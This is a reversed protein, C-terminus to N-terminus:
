KGVYTAGGQPYSNVGSHLYVLTAETVEKNVTEWNEQYFAAIMGDPGPTKLGGIQFMAVKVEEAKFPSCLSRKQIESIIPTFHNILQMELPFFGDEPDPGHQQDSNAM